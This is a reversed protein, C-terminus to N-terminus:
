RNAIGLSHSTHKGEEHNLMDSDTMRYRHTSDL